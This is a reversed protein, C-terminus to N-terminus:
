LPIQSSLVCYCTKNVIPFYFSSSFYQGTKSFKGAAGNVQGNTGTKREGSERYVRLESFIRNFEKTVIRAYELVEAYVVEKEWEAYGKLLEGLKQEMQGLEITAWAGTPTAEALFKFTNKRVKYQNKHETCKKVVKNETM